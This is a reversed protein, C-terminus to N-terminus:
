SGIIPPTRHGVRPATVPLSAPIRGIRALRRRATDVLEPDIDVSFVNDDGLRYALM